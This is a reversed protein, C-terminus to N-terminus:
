RKASVDRVYPAYAPTWIKSRIRHILPGEDMKAALGEQQAKLAVACAIEFSVERLAAVSPLLNGDPHKAVPSITALTRAAAMFMGDSIYRAQSAVAGLGIGPFVYSNNTQDFKFSKGNRVVPPFPSGVGVIALGNTWALLDAPDAESHSSPNSLALIVPRDVGAAMARVSAEDFAGSQGSVGILATPRVNKVTDLLDITGNHRVDWEAVNATPRAFRRQVPSLNRIRDLLLGDVDILFIQGRAQQVTLGSETIARLLLNAIGCGASGAGFICVRQQTIPIGSVRLAALLTGTAAAATGQVDDNFTCLCDRYRDLLRLANNKAFDEWQLLVHPWREKVASVFVDVFDDYKEGRVRPHRWGLYLPDNLREENDTGVDLFIPLTTSPHLGACCTYLATKGIAIGMGGVGQDDLGLIREGDTVVIVEVKDFRPHSLIHKVQDQLPISLFYGRPRRFLRSFQQCGLGVIPTYVIPLMEELNAVLLAYFLTENADQLERLFVHRELDNPLGRLAALRRDIQENLTSIHPPLLGHLDFDQRERETFATGKNLASNMLLEYGTQSVQVAQGASTADQATDPM